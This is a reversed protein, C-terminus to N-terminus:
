GLIVSLVRQILTSWRVGLGGHGKYKLHSTIKTEYSQRCIIVSDSVECNSKQLTPIEQTRCILSRREDEEERRGGNEKRMKEEEEEATEKEGGRRKRRKRKEEEEEEEVPVTEAKNQDTSSFDGLRKKQEM